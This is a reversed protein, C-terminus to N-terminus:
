ADDAADVTFKGTTSDLVTDFLVREPDPDMRLLAEITFRPRRGGKEAEVRTGVRVESLRPEFIRICEEIDRALEIRAEPSDASRSTVDPLGFHYVSERVETFRDPAPDAIRRTNLLWELDRLVSARYEAVSEAWTTTGDGVGPHRDILRDVISPRVTRESRITM